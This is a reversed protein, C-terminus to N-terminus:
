LVNITKTKKVAQLHHPLVPARRPPRVGGARRGQRRVPRLRPAGEAQSGGRGGGRPGRHGQVPVHGAARGRARARQRARRRQRRLDPHAPRGRRRETHLRLAVLRVAACPLLADDRERRRRQARGRRGPRAGRRPLGRLAGRRAGPQARPVADGGRGPVRRQQQHRHASRASEAAAASGSGSAAVVVLLPLHDGGGAAVLAWRPARHAGPGPRSSGPSAVAARCLGAEDQDEPGARSEAEVGAAAEGCRRAEVLLRPQSRGRLERVRRAPTAPSAEQAGAGRGQRGRRRGGHVQLPPVPGLEGGGGGDPPPPAASAEGAHHARGSVCRHSHAVAPRRQAIYCSALVGYFALVRQYIHNLLATV